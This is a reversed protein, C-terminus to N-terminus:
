KVQDLSWYNNSPAKLWKDIKILPQYEM